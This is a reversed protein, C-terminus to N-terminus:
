ATHDEHILQGTNITFTSNHEEKLDQYFGCLKKWKIVAILANLANLDAIQINTGYEDDDAQTGGIRIPIHDYKTPTGVTMRLTGVLNNDAVNIGLGVDIFSVGLQRLKSIIMNRASNNDICIFVYSLGKLQDINVETIKEPYAKIGRRMKSYISAYYDVKKMQMGLIEVSAAGPSRFANHQLFEDSDFLLIEDVHTKAVCDLIYGTGGLGIIGIRLGKFKENLKNINARSSNSDTYLFISENELCEIVRFTQATVTKDISRAQSYIIEVYRTVKHYYDRYGSQPKNSFMFNLVIGEFLPKNPSSHQIATIISGDKNCPHEGMFYIVHDKVPNITVDNNLELPTILKGFKIQCSGNVYPIHHVVLHGGKVEIEYGENQLRKLDASHDVQLTQM